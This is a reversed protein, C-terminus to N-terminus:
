RIVIQERIKRAAAEGRLAEILALAFKVACGASAGTIVAGDRVAAAEPQMRASGMGDECGPYCVANKGDTIGLDALVTPGACIAAVYLGMDWAKRLTDMAAASARLSAVGKLGGPIAVMEAKALDVDAMAIDAQIGIGHSGPVLMGTVGVTQVQIGARRLLDIPAVAETEEFGEGLLFYVM